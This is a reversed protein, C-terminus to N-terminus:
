GHLREISMPAKNLNADLLISILNDTQRTSSTDALGDFKEDLKKKISSRVSARDLIEGEILSSNIIENELSSIQAQLFDNKNIKNVINSLITHNREIEKIIEVTDVKNYFLIQITITNGYGNKIRIRSMAFYIKM